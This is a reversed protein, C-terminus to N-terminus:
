AEAKKLRAYYFGDMGEEGPLTQRGVARKWGWRADIPYELADPQRELFALVQDENEEPLLSCTAYLLIGGPKLLRWLADLMRSQTDCLPVVDQERRLQKIDPHRRIVGTASCPVDLLVRDYTNEAWEGEPNAVDGTTLRATLGLRDLNEQVRDLREPAIDVATLELANGSRELIHATKGGPAACADLVREGPHPDLLVAALQAGADQVSVRGAAFGPLREAPVPRDLTLGVEAHPAPHATLGGAALEEIYRARTVQRINVRLTM